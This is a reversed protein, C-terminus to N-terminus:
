KAMEVLGLTIAPFAILLGLVVLETVFFWGTGRFITGVPVDPLISRLIYVNMGVPPTILGIEIYKIFLIGFWILNIDAAIYIPLFVPLALLMLGIPDLICGLALFIVGTILVLALPSLDLAIVFNSIFEPLDSYAMFRTLLIAGTIVFFISATNAVSGAVCQVMNERTLRRQVAAIMLAAIVGFSASETASAVGTYISGIVVLIIFPLPWIDALARWKEKPDAAASTAPALSPNLACRGVIMVAYLIATLLGPVIGALFMAGVSVEAFYAYIIMPISPPIMVGLTGAAAVVGTALGKDYKHELMEPVAIKGMAISTVVSSGAAASFGACGFNTAVALGGPLWSLWLRAARFLATTMGTEHAIAGMLIFLPVASFEWNAAFSYPVNQLVSFVARSGAILWIGATAVVGMAIGIHFRFAILVIMVIVGAGGIQIDTM